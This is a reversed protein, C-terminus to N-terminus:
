PDQDIKINVANAEGVTAPIVHFVANPGGGGPFPPAHWKGGPRVPVTGAWNAGQSSSTFSDSSIVTDSGVFTVEVDFGVALEIPDTAGAGAVPSDYAYGKNPTPNTITWQNAAASGVLLAACLVTAISLWRGMLKRAM